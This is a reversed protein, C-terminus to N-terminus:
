QKTKGIGHLILFTDRCVPNGMFHFAMKTRQRQSSPSHGSTLPTSVLLAALQGLIAMDLEVWSLVSCGPRRLSNGRSQQVALNGEIENVAVDKQSSTPSSLIEM